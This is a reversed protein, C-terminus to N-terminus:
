GKMMVMPEVARPPSEKSAKGMKVGKSKTVINEVSTHNDAELGIGLL